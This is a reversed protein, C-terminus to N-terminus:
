RIPYVIGGIVALVAGGFALGALVLCLIASAKARSGTEIVGGRGVFEGTRLARMGLSLFYIGAGLMAGVTVVAAIWRVVPIKEYETINM